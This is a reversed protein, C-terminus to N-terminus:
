NQIYYPIIISFFSVVFDHSKLFPVFELFLPLFYFEHLGAEEMFLIVHISGNM